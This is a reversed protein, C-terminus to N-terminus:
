QKKQLLWTQNWGNNPTYQQIKVRYGQSGNPVDIALGSAGNFIRHYEPRSLTPGNVAPFTEFRWQQNLGGHLRYQQIPLGPTPFGNPVDLAKGTAVNVITLRGNALNTLQWQQNAGGHYGFQQVVVGDAPNSSPVDLTLFSFGGAHNALIYYIGNQPM